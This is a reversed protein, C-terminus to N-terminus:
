AVVKVMGQVTANNVPISYTSGRDFTVLMTPGVIPTTEPKLEQVTGMGLKPHQVRDGQQYKM